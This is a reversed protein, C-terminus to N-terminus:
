WTYRRKLNNLNYREIKGFHQLQGVVIGPSIGIRQAFRIVKRSDLPLALLSAQYQRPVLVDGAFENAEQEQKSAWASLGEVFFGKEGHLLLHGAEHFFTFWFQDDSLHRFSLLLLAKHPTLFRTAGSAKCGSPARVVVVAVGCRACMQRLIPLFKSPDKERTLRRIDGISEGFREVSWQGCEIASSEIEGQRLWAALAAPRSEFSPSARFAALEHVSAYVRRWAVIDPVDFFRLCDQLQQSKVQSPVLWGFNVMDRVPLSELWEDETAHLRTVEQRFQFERSMWFEVSSGLLQALRRAIGITVHTRGGILGQAQEQTFGLHAALDALSLHRERLVDMITDGPPSVWDPRFQSASNMTAM